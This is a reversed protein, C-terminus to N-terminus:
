DPQLEPRPNPFNAGLNPGSMAGAVVLRPLLSISYIEAPPPALAVLDPARIYHLTISFHHVLYPWWKTYSKLKKLFTNKIFFFIRGPLASAEIKTSAGAESKLRHKSM